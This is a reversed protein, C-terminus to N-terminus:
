PIESKAADILCVMFNVAMFFSNKSERTNGSTAAVLQWAGRRAAAVGTTIM